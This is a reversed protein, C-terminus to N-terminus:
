EDIKKGAKAVKMMQQQLTQLATMQAQREYSYGHIKRFTQRFTISKKKM